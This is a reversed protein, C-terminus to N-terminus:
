VLQVAAAGLAPTDREVVKTTFIVTKGEKWASVELTEGPYVVGLFRAKMENFPGFKDALLKGSIGYSCLGHLIPNEFGGVKSFDPDIHLPNYDGSLRYLAAQDTTTKHSLVADPKRSPPKNAATVAGREKPSKRGGFGGSGRIFVTSHNVMVLEGSDKDFSKVCSTVAAAKGKDLVEVLSPKNIVSGETPLGGERLIKFHQEGHLLMMPSFNPLFDLPLSAGAVFQPIVAFTPM